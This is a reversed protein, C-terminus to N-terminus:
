NIGGDIAAPLDRVARHLCEPSLEPLIVRTLSSCGYLFHNGVERVNSLASLDVEQLSSCGRLTM